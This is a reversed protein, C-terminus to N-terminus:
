RFGDRNRSGSRKASSRPSVLNQIQLAEGTELFVKELDLQSTRAGPKEVVVYVARGDSTWFPASKVRDVTMTPRAPVFSQGQREVVHLRNEELDDRHIFALKSGDPSWVPTVANEITQILRSSEVKVILVAPAPGPKPFALYQGDPSWMAAVHVFTEKAEPGLEFDPVTLIARKRDLSQQM